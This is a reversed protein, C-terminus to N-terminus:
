PDCTLMGGNLWRRPLATTGYNLPNDNKPMAFAEVQRIIEEINARWAAETSLDLAQGPHCQSCNAQAFTNVECWTVAEESAETVRVLQDRDRLWLSGDDTATLRQIFGIGRPREAVELQEGRLAYVQTSDVAWLTGDAAGTLAEIGESAGLQPDTTLAMRRWVRAGPQESDVLRYLVGGSLGTLAGDAGPVVVQMAPETPQAQVRVEALVSEVVLMRGDALRVVVATSVDNARLDIVRGLEVVRELQGANLRWLAADTGLWLVEGQRALVQVREGGLEANLSSRMLRGDWVLLGEEGAALVMADYRLVSYVPAVPFDVVETLQERAARFGAQDLLQVGLPSGTVTGLHEDSALPVRATVGWSEPLSHVVSNPLEIARVASPRVLAGLDVPEVPSPCAALLALSPIIRRM